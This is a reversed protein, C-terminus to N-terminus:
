KLVCAHQAESDEREGAQVGGFAVRRRERRRPSLAARCLAGAQEALRRRLHAAHQRDHVRLLRRIRQAQLRQRQLPEHPVATGVARADVDDLM